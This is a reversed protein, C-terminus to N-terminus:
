TCTPVAQTTTGPPTKQPSTPLTSVVGVQALTELLRANANTWSFRKVSEAAIQGRARAEDRNTYVNRMLAVAHEESPEAWLGCGTFQGEAPVMRYDLPYGFSSDFFEAVGGFRAAIIPRGTALAQHQMLGWGEARAMSVFCTLTRFWAGMQAESLCGRIVSVRPDSVSPTECDPFTKVRLRVDKENPFARQFLTIVENVRKRKPDSDNRGAAGFVCLGDTEMPHYRFVNTNIGLPIVRIERTVGCARFTEANWQCPVIVIEAANLRNAAGKALESSEWMTFFATKTGPRPTYSPPHLLLEWASEEGPPLFATRIYDPIRAFKEEISTPHIRVECGAAAFDRCIQMGHLGYGTYANIPARLVMQKRPAVVPVAPAPYPITRAGAALMWARWAPKERLEDLYALCEEELLFGDIHIDKGAPKWKALNRHQFIREGRFNHQCMAAKLRRVPTSPMAYSKGVKRFALHFTEKDGHVLKYFVDSHENMWLALSLARWCRKKDVCLQGSEFEPEDRYEIGCTEWIPNDKEIRGIDPWFIAGHKRYQWTAFLQAPDVLPVNDADLLLVDRFPSHMIAYAKLEWGGLRRVRRQRRVRAADVCEVGLGEFLVRVGPPLEREGLYWLQVPLACGTRRLMHLCVWACALYQPGGGCIVIGRGEYRRDPYAPATALTKEIAAKTAAPALSNLAESPLRAAPARPVVLVERETRKPAVALYMEIRRIVDEASIMHM